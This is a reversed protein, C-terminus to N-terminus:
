AGAEADLADFAERLARRRRRALLASEIALALLLVGVSGWVYRGHGGMALWDLLAQTSM